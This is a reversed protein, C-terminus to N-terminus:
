PLVPNKRRWQRMPTRWILLLIPWLHPLLLTRLLPHQAPLHPLAEALKPVRWSRVMMMLSDTLKNVLSVLVSTTTKSLRRLLRSILLLPPLHWTRQSPPPMPLLALTSPLCSPQRLSPETDWNRKEETRWISSTPLECYERCSLSKCTSLLPMPKHVPQKVIELQSPQKDPTSREGM